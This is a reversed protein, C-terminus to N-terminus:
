WGVAVIMDNVPSDINFAHFKSFDQGLETVDQVNNYLYHRGIMVIIPRGTRSIYMDGKSPNNSDYSINLRRYLRYLSGKSSARTAWHLIAHYILPQYAQNYADCIYQGEKYTYFVNIHIGIHRHIYSIILFLSLLLFRSSLFFCFYFLVSLSHALPSPNPNPHPYILLSLYRFLSLASLSASFFYM